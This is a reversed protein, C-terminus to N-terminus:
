MKMKIFLFKIFVKIYVFVLYDEVFYMCEVLVVIIM